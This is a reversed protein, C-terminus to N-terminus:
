TVPRAVWSHKPEATLLLPPDDLDTPADLADEAAVTLVFQGLRRWWGPFRPGEVTSVTLPQWGDGLRAVTVEVSRTDRRLGTTLVKLASEKASWILNASVEPAGSAAVFEQEAPTFFDTVFGHSRPEVLELDCGIRGPARSVLCVAWDARDTLSMRLDAPSGDVCVFPAGSSEHRIEVRRLDDGPLGLATCITSKATFRATRFETRRKTFRKSAAYAYEGPSLWGDGAPVHAESRALWEALAM